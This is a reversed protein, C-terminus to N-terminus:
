LHRRILRRAAKLDAQLGDIIDLLGQLPVIADDMTSGPIKDRHPYLTAYARDIVRTVRCLLQEDVDLLLRTVERKKALRKDAKTPRRKKRKATV